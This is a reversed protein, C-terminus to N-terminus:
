KKPKYVFTKGDKKKKKIQKIIDDTLNNEKYYAEEPTLGQEFFPKYFHRGIISSFGENTEFDTVMLGKEAVFVDLEECFKDFTM